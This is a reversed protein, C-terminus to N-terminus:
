RGMASVEPQVQNRGAAIAAGGYFLRRQAPLGGLVPAELGPRGM